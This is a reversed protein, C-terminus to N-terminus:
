AILGRGCYYDDLVLKRMSALEETSMNSVFEEYLRLAFQTPAPLDLCTDKELKMFDDIFQLAGNRVERRVDVAAVEADSLERYVPVSQNDQIIYKVLQGSDASLLQEFFFSHAVAIPQVGSSSASDYFCGYANAVGEEKVRVIRDDTIMYYGDLKLNFEKNISAQITGAYGVDVVAQNREVSLHIDNFYMQMARREMEANSLIDPLIESLLNHIDSTSQPLIQISKEPM